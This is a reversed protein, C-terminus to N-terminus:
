LQFRTHFTLSVSSTKHPSIIRVKEKRKILCDFLSGRPCFELVLCLKTTVVAVDGLEGGEVDGNCAHRSKEGHEGKHSKTVAGIFSVINPHNGVCLLRQLYNLSFLSFISYCGDCAGLKAMVQAEARIENLTAEDAKALSVHEM